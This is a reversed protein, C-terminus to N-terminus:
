SLGLVWDLVHCGKLHATQRCHLAAEDEGLESLADALVPRLDHDGQSVALALARVHSPFSRTPLPRFPNGVIERVIRCQERSERGRRRFHAHCSRLAARAADANGADQCARAALAVEMDGETACTLTARAAESTARQLEDHGALGDLFRETTEVARRSAPPVIRGWIRRCCAVAILHRKRASLRSGLWVLLVASDTEELWEEETLSRLPRPLQGSYARDLLRERRVQFCLVTAMVPWLLGFLLALPLSTLLQRLRARWPRTPQGITEVLVFLLVLLGAVGAWLLFLGWGLAHLSM